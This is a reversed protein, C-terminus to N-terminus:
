YEQFPQLGSLITADITGRCSFAAYSRCIQNATFDVLVRIKEGIKVNCGALHLAGNINIAPLGRFFIFPAARRAPRPLRVSRKLYLSFNM